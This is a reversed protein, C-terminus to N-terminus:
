KFKIKVDSHHCQGCRQSGQRWARMGDEHERTSFTTMIVLLYHLRWVLQRTFSVFQILRLLRFSAAPALIM